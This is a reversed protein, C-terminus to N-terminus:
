RLRSSLWLHRVTFFCCPCTYTRQEYSVDEVAGRGPDYGGRHDSDIIWHPTTCQPCRIHGLRGPTM